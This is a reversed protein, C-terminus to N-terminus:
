LSWLIWSIYTLVIGSVMSWFATKRANKSEDEDGCLILSAILSIATIALFIWFIVKSVTKM